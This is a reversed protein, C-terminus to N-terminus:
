HMTNTSIWHGYPEHLMPIDLGIIEPTDYPHHKLIYAEIEKFHITQTKIFLQYEKDCHQQGNWIYYSNVPSTKQICAAYHMTLLRHCIHASDFSVPYTVIIMIFSPSM